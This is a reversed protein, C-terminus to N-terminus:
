LGELIRQGRDEFRNAREELLTSAHDGVVSLLGTFEYSGRELVLLVDELVNSVTTVLRANKRAREAKEFHEYALYEEPLPAVQETHPAEDAPLEVPGQATASYSLLVVFLTPIAKM